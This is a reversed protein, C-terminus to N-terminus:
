PRYKLLKALFASFFIHVQGRIQAPLKKKVLFAFDRFAVDVGFQGFANPLRFVTAYQLANGLVLKPVAVHPAAM